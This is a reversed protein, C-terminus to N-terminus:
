PKPDVSRKAKYWQGLEDVESERKMNSVVEPAVISMQVTMVDLPLLNMIASAHLRIEDWSIPYGTSDLTINLDAGRPPAAFTEELRALIEATMSRKNAKAEAEVKLRMEEPLRLRFHPDGRAM